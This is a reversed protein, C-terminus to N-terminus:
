SRPLSRDHNSYSHTKSFFCDTPISIHTPCTGPALYAISVDTTSFGYCTELIHPSSVNMAYYTAFLLASNMSAIVIFPYRLLKILGIITPPPANAFKKPDVVTPQRWRLLM